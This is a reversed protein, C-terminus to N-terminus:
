NRLSCSSLEEWRDGSASVEGTLEREAETLRVVLRRQM